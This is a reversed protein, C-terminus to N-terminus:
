SNHHKIRKNHKENLFKKKNIKKQQLIFSMSQEYSQHITIKIMIDIINLLMNKMNKCVVFIIKKLYNANNIVLIRACIEVRHRANKMLIKKMIIQKLTM